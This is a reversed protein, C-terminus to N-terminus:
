EVTSVTANVNIDRNINFTVYDLRDVGFPTQTLLEMTYQGSADIVSDWDDLLLVRDHPVADNIVIASGPVPLGQTGLVPPGPYIQAYTRSEPYLDNLTLTLAPADFRLNVGDVLGDISGDAVPWVQLTKLALPAGDPVQYDPLSHVVFREEGRLKALNSGPVSPLSYNFVTVGNGTIIGESLKTAYDRDITLENGGPGYSQVFRQMKVMRSAEPAAPDVLMGDLTVTVVFPRDARTRPNTVYPDESTIVISAQPVYTGVYKEDLLYDDLTSNKVTWLEFRAGGPDIALPSLQQGIQAVPVDWEAGSAVQVQRIFNSYVQAHVVGSHLLLMAIVAHFKM